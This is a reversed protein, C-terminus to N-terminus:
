IRAGPRMSWPAPSLLPTWLWPGGVEKRQISADQSILRIEIFLAGQDSVSLALEPFM